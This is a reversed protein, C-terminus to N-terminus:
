CHKGLMKKHIQGQTMFTQKKVYKAVQSTCSTIPLVSQSQPIPLWYPHFTSPTPEQQMGNKGEKAVEYFTGWLTSLTWSLTNLLKNCPYNKHDRRCVIVKVISGESIKANGKFHWYRVKEHKLLLNPWWHLLENKIHLPCLSM